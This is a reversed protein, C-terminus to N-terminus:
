LRLKVLGDDDGEPLNASTVAENDPAIEVTGLM